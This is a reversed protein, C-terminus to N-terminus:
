RIEANLEQQLAAAIRKQVQDVDVDSLTRDDAQYTLHFALSKVDEGDRQFEDFLDSDIVLGGGTREIVEQAQDISVEGPVLFSIDRLVSPYRSFSEFTKVGESRQRLEDLSVAGVVEERAHPIVADLNIEFVSVPVRYKLKQQVHASLQGMMGIRKGDVSLMVGGPALVPDESPGETIGPVGLRERLVDLVEQGSPGEGAALGAAYIYEEVGSVHTDTGPWMVHGIEFLAREQDTRDRHFAERNLTMHEFLGPLLSRRLYKQEPSVPNRVELHELEYVGALKAYKEIEFTLTYTETFGLEVFMDRVVEKWYAEAPLSQAAYGPLAQASINELGHLRIVEEIVDHEQLLDLRDSPVAVQWVDGKEEVVCRLRELFQRSQAHPIEIGAMSSVRQPHVPIVPATRKNGYADLVGVVEAGTIREVLTVIRAAAEEVLNPDIGKQFRASAETRVNLAAATQQIAFAQFNAVELFVDTTTDGVQTDAGGMIGALAVPTDGATVVLSNKPLEPNTNDLLAMREGETVARVGIEKRPLTHTDFVHSPNGLEFNVYNTVDVLASIPRSGMAWLRAQMSLPTHGNSVGRLVVGMYRPTMHFDEIDVSFGDVEDTADPLKQMEVDEFPIDFLAALERAVGRHSMCDHARNPTIDLELIVDNPVHDVFRDGVPTDSPLIVIGGHDVGLGLERASNLMGPSNEGRIKAEKIEFPKGDQDIVVTGPPSYPVIQGAEINPAGCVVRIEETGDTITALRLRDANPHPEVSLIRVIKVQADIKWEQAVEAEFSHMTLAHAIEQPTHTLSPLFEKLWNYSIRM